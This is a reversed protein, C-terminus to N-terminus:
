QYFNVAYKFALENHSAEENYFNNIEDFSDVNIHRIIVKDYYEKLNAMPGIVNEKVKECFGCNPISFMILIPIKNKWVKQSDMFFNKAPPLNLEYAFAFNSVIALLLLYFKFMPRM